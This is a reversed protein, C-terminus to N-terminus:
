HIHANSHQSEQIDSSVTFVTKEEESIIAENVIEPFITALDKMDSITFGKRECEAFIETVFERVRQNKKVRLMERALM